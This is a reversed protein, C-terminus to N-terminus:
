YWMEGTNRGYGCVTGLDFSCRIDLDLSKLYFLLGHYGGSSTVCYQGYMEGHESLRKDLNSIIPLLKKYMALILYEYLIPYKQKLIFEYAHIMEHLIVAKDFIHSQTISITHEIGNCEGIYSKNDDVIYCRYMSASLELYLQDFEEVLFSCIGWCLSGEQFTMDEFFLNEYELINLYLKSEEPSRNFFWEQYLTHLEDDSLLEKNIM